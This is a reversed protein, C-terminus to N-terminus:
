AYQVVGKGGSSKVIAIAGNIMSFQPGKHGIDADFIVPVNLDGLVSMVADKYDQGIWTNYMLPRGFVFGSAYKFYGRQKMQWLHTILVTDNMDFSELFWLIGDDKYKNVFEETGDYPTGILFSIVDLCGGLLRGRICLEDEGRGNIWCVKEDDFYGELGTEYDHRDAEFYEFSKQEKVSGDLIGLANQMSKQWPKMGFDGFNCGYVSAVDCKTTISYVLGTNDSYGQFWKPNAKIKEYDVYPLMEMLYDGGAASIIGTVDNEDFLENFEKARVKGEASCGRLDAKFVSDTFRVNYGLEELQEKGSKFRIKKIEDTIGNSPAVVAITDKPAIYKPFIM